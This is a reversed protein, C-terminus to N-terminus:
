WSMQSVMRSHDPSRGVGDLAALLRLTGEKMVIGGQSSAMAKQVWASDVSMIRVAEPALV